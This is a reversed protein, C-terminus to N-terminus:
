NVTMTHIKDCEPGHECELESLQDRVLFWGVISNCTGCTVYLKDKEDRRFGVAIDDLKKETVCSSCHIYFDLKM